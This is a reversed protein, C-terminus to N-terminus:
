GDSSRMGYIERGYGCIKGILFLSLMLCGLFVTGEAPAQPIRVPGTATRGVELCDVFRLYAQWTILVSIGLIISRNLINLLVQTRKSFRTFILTVAVHEERLEAYAITFYTFGVMLYESTNYSWLLPMNFLYRLIVDVIMIFMLAIVASMGVVGFYKVLM